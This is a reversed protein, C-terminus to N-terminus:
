RGSVRVASFQAELWNLPVRGVRSPCNEERAVRESPLLEKVPAIGVSSPSKDLRATKFKSVFWSVPPMGGCIAVAESFVRISENLLKVPVIGDCSCDM